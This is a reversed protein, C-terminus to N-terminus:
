LSDEDLGSGCSTISMDVDSLVGIELLPDPIKSAVVM